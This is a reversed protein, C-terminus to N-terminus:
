NIGCGNSIAVLDLRDACAKEFYVFDTKGIGVHESIYGGEFEHLKQLYAAMTSSDPDPTYPVAAERASMYETSSIKRCGGAEIKAAVCQHKEAVMQMKQALAEKSLVAAFALALCAAEFYREKM